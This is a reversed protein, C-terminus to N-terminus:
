LLDIFIFLVGTSYTTTRLTSILPQPLPFVDPVGAHHSQANVPRYLHENPEFCCEYLGILCPGALDVSTPVDSASVM